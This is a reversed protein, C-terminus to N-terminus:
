AHYIESGYFWFVEVQEIGYLVIAADPADTGGVYRIAAVHQVVENGM